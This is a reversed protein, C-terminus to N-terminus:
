AALPSTNPSTNGDVRFDGVLNRLSEASATMEEVTAAMEQSASANQQTVLEVQPDAGAVAGMRIGNGGEGRGRQRGRTRQQRQRTKGM